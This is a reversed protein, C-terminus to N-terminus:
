EEETLSRTFEMCSRTRKVEMWRGLGAPRSSFKWRGRQLVADAAANHGSAYRSVGQMLCPNPSVGDVTVVAGDLSRGGEYVKM